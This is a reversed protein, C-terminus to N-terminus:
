LPRASLSSTCSIALSSDFTSIKFTKIQIAVQRTSQIRSLNDNSAIFPSISLFLQQSLSLHHNHKSLQAKSPSLAGGASSSSVLKPWCSCSLFFSTLTTRFVIHTHSLSHSPPSLTCSHSYVSLLSRYLAHLLSPSLSLNSIKSSSLTLTQNQGNSSLSLTPSLSILFNSFSPMSFTTSAPSACVFFQSLSLVRSRDLNLFHCSILCLSLSSFTPLFFISCIFFCFNRSVNQQASACHTPHTHTHTMTPTITLRPMIMCVGVWVCVCVFSHNTLSTLLFSQLLSLPLSLTPSAHLQSICSALFRVFVFCVINFLNRTFITQMQSKSPYNKALVILTFKSVNKFRCFKKRLRM